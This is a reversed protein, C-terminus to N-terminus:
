VNCHPPAPPRPDQTGATQARVIERQGRVGTVEKGWGGGGGGGVEEGEGEVPGAQTRSAFPSDKLTWSRETGIKGPDQTLAELVLQERDIGSPCNGTVTPTQLSERTDQPHDTLSTVTESGLGTGGEGLGPGVGGEGGRESGPGIESSSGVRDERLGTESSSIAPAVTGTTSPRNEKGDRGATPPFVAGAQERNFFAFSTSGFRPSIESESLDRSRKRIGIGPVETDQRPEEMKALIEEVTTGPFRKGQGRVSVPRVRFVPKAAPREAPAPPAPQSAVTPPARVEWSAAPPPTRMAEALLELLPPAGPPQPSTPSPCPSITSSSSSPRRVPQHPRAGSFGYPRPGALSNVKCVSPLEALPPKTSMPKPPVTPKPKVPPKAAGPGSPSKNGSDLLLALPRRDTLQESLSPSAMASVQADAM